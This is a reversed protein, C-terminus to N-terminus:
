GGIGEVFDVEGEKGLEELEGGAGGEHECARVREHPPRRRLSTPPREPPILPLHATTVLPLARMNSPSICHLGASSWSLPCSGARREESVGYGVVGVGNCSSSLTETSNKTNVVKTPSTRFRGMETTLSVGRSGGGGECAEERGWLIGLSTIVGKKICLEASM